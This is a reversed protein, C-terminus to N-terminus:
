FDQLMSIYLRPSRSIQGWAVDARFFYGRINARGGFGYGVLTSEYSYSNSISVNSNTNPSSNHSVTYNGPFFGTGASGLDAFAVAQLSSLLKNKIKRQTLSNLIPIRLEENWILFSSGNLDNQKYGRLNTAPTQYGYNQDQNKQNLLPPNNNNQNLFNLDNDIGGLRYLMRTKGGSAGLCLRNALIINKFIPMYYRLDGGFTYLSSNGNSVQLFAEAWMKYKLGKSINQIPTITNDYVYEVRNFWWYENKAPFTLSFETTAKYRTNENRIGGIYKLSTTANLPYSLNAQLYNQALIGTEVYPSYFPDGSRLSTDAILTTDANHIFSLEWDLRKKYNGFKLLYSFTKQFNPRIAGTIRYDELVDVLSANIMTSLPPNQFQPNDATLRQYRNFLLSNDFTTQMYDFHFSRIYEKPRFKKAVAIKNKQEIYNKVTEMSDIDNVFETLFYSSPQASDIAKVKVGKKLRSLYPTENQKDLSDLLKTSTSYIEYTNNRLIIDIMANDKRNYSHYIINANIPANLLYTISDQGKENKSLYFIYRQKYGNEDALFCLANTGYQTAQTIDIESDQSCDILQSSASSANYFYLHFKTNPLEGNKLTAGITNKDRNSMFLVGNFANGQVFNPNIEDWIDKTVNALQGGKIAFQYLDGQGKKIASIMIKEDDEMFTMSHIRDFKNTTFIRESIRGKKADWVKLRQYHEKEYMVGLKKGNQSWAIIPYQQDVLELNHRMGGEIITFSKNSAIDLINIKYVHQREIVYALAKGDPSMSFKTITSLKPIKLKAVLTRNEILSSDKTDSDWYFKKWEDYIEQHPKNTVYAIIRNISSGSNAVYMLNNIYSEGYTEYIYNFFSKGILESNETAHDELKYKPKTQILNRIINGEDATWDESIYHVYGQSFWSPLTTAKAKKIIDKIKFGFLINDRLIKVVGKRLQQRLGHHTGDFYIVISNGSIEIKGGDTLIMSENQIGINTQKYDKFSNYLVVNIKKTLSASMAKTILPLDIESQQLLYQANFKGYGNYFIRFNNTDLYRWEFKDKQIRHRGFNEYTASQANVLQTFFVFIFFIFLFYKLRQQM